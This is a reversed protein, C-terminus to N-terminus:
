PRCRSPCERIAFSRNDTKKIEVVNRSRLCGRPPISHFDRRSLARYSTSRAVRRTAARDYIARPSASTEARRLTDRRIEVYRESDRLSLEFHTLSRSRHMARIGRSYILPTDPEWRKKGNHIVLRELNGVDEDVCPLDSYFALEDCRRSANKVTSGSRALLTAVRTRLVTPSEITEGRSRVFDHFTQHGRFPLDRWLQVIASEDCSKRLAFVKRV